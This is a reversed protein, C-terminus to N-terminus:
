KKAINSAITRYLKNIDIPKSLHGNMGAEQALTVDESFANATMAIIPLTDTGPHGSARIKRTADHGNLVPMQVDMLVLDYYGAPKGLVMDVAKQGNEANDVEANVMQLFEQAIERNFENDEVLLVRKGKFDYNKQLDELSDTHEKAPKVAAVLADYLSSSFFPKAIFADVGANRAKEEIPSWDYASIIIILLDSGVFERIQRATEAGDMEPMKWDILCVDFGRGAAQAEKVKCVAEKGSNVFETKMGLKELLLSAHECTGSDDDVILVKMPPLSDHHPRSEQSLGFPLEITSTTGKGEESEVSITGGMLKILNYTIPMGLGTGGFRSATSATAQEFPLYLKKLFEKSMGIGTDSIIFRFTIRNQRAPMQMIKLCITGGQPTFKLSNSLINILVQNLRLVDGILDEQEVNELLIEFDLNKLQTQPRVLNNINKITRNLNFPERTITLKGSEIKSMDLVDNILGLLHKSSEAIKELCDEVREKDDIRSIAITTMGIIANMPTRIEHSMHSLFSSKAESALNAADLADQLNQRQIHARTQDSIVIIDHEGSSRDGSESIPFIHINCYKDNEELYFDMEETEPAKDREALTGALWKKINEPLLSYIINPNQLIEKSPIGLLRSSNPSVYSFTRNDRAIIFVEDVNQSLQSFLKERNAIERVQKAARKDALVLALTIMTGLALSLFILLNMRRNMDAQIASTQNEVSEFIDNLAGYVVGVQPEIMERYLNMSRNYSTNGLLERAYDRRLMRIKTLAEALKDLLPRDDGVILSSMAEFSVNQARDQRQLVDEVENYTMSPTALLGPLTNRMELVRIKMERTERAIQVPHTNIYNMMEIFHHMNVSIFIIYIVLCVYILFKWRIKGQM